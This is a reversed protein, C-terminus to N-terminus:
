ASVIGICVTFTEDLENSDVLLLVCVCKVTLLCITQMYIYICQLAYMKVKM